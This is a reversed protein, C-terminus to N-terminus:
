SVQTQDDKMSRNRSPGHWDQTLFGLIDQLIKQPDEIPQNPSTPHMEWTEFDHEWQKFSVINSAIVKSRCARSTALIAVAKQCRVWWPTLAEIPPHDPLGCQQALYKNSELGWSHYIYWCIDISVQHVRGANGLGAALQFGGRHHVARAESLSADPSPWWLFREM